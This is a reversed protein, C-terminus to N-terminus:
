PQVPSGGKVVPIRWRGFCSSFRDSLVFCGGTKRERWMWNLEILLGMAELAAHNLAWSQTMIVGCLHSSSLLSRVSSNLNSFSGLSLSYTNSSLLAPGRPLGDLSVKAWLRFHLQGASVMVGHWRLQSVLMQRGWGKNCIEPSNHLANQIRQGETHRELVVVSM